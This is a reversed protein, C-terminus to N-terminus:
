WGGAFDFDYCEVPVFWLKKKEEHNIWSLTVDDNDIFNEMRPLLAHPISDMIKEAKIASERADFGNRKILGTAMVFINKCKTHACMCRFTRHCRANNCLLRMPNWDGNRYSSAGSLRSHTTRNVDTYFISCLISIANSMRMGKAQRRRKCDYDLRRGQLKKRHHQLPFRFFLIFLFPLSFIPFICTFCSRANIHGPCGACRFRSLISNFSPVNACEGHSGEFRKDAFSAIARFFETKYQWGTLIKCRGNTTTIRGNGCTSWSRNSTFIYYAM